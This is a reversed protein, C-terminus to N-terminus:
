LQFDTLCSFSMEVVLFEFLKKKVDNVLPSDKSACLYMRSSNIRQSIQTIRDVFTIEHSYETM